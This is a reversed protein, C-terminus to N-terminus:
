CSNQPGTSYIIHLNALLSIPLTTWNACESKINCLLHFTESSKLDGPKLVCWQLTLFSSIDCFRLILAAILSQYQYSNIAAVVPWKSKQFIVPSSAKSFTHSLTSLTFVMDAILAIRAIIIDGIM